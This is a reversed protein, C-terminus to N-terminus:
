AQLNVVILNLLHNIPCIYVVVPHDSFIFKVEYHSFYGRFNSRMCNDTGKFHNNLNFNINYQLDAKLLISNVSNNLGISDNEANKLM